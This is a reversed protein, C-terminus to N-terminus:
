KNGIVQDVPVEIGYVGREVVHLGPILGPTFTTLLYHGDAEGRVYFTHGAYEATLPLPTPVETTAKTQPAAYYISEYTQWRGDKYVSRLIERGQPTVEYLEAGEAPAFYGAFTWEPYGGNGLTSTTFGGGGNPWSHAQTGGLEPAYPIYLKDVSPSCFRIVAYGAGTASFKTGEYDLRMGNYVQEMTVLQKVDAAECVFGGVTGGYKNNMYTSLDEIPIVKQLVTSTTPRTVGDRVSKLKVQETASLAWASDTSMRVFDSTSVNNATLISDREEGFGNLNLIYGHTYTGEAITTQVVDDDECATFALSLILLPLLLRKM